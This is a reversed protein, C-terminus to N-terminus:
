SCKIILPNTSSSSAAFRADVRQGIVWVIQDGTCLLWQNEKDLMSYKQDKFFKSLKKKGTMGVPYFYDGKRYKRLILPYKLLSPSLRACDSSFLAEEMLTLQVPSLLNASPTWEIEAANDKDKLPCLLLSTRNNLLRHTSSILQKGSQANLLSVLDNLHSFGYPSFLAFLYYDLPKLAKISALSITIVEEKEIFHKAKFDQLVNSLAEEALAINKFTEEANKLLRDNTAKWVPIVAHRLQNRLYDQTANSADERWDISNEKAFALIEAKSFSLLPRIIASSTIGRLGKLGSGRGMNIMFTELQDDLHHATLIHSYGFEKKLEDFWDYRLQRAAMQTSIGNSSSHSQTDFNQTHLNISHKQCHSVVFDEDGDSAEHRLGFNCHAVAFPLKSKLLLHFLVMSDVGGSNALLLHAKPHSELLGNLQDQVIKLM